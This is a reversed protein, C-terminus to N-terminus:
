AHRHPQAGRGLLIREAEHKLGLARLDRYTSLIARGILARDEPTCERTELGILRDLRGLFLTALARQSHVQM